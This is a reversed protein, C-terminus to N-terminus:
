SKLHRDFFTVTRKWATDAAKADYRTAVKPDPPADNASSSRWPPSRSIRTSPRSTASYRGFNLGTM